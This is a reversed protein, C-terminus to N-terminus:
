IGTEKSHDGKEPSEMSQIIALIVSFCSESDTEDPIFRAFKVADGMRLAGALLGLQIKTLSKQSLKILLDDTTSFLFPIGTRRSAYNRFVRSLTTHYEKLIQPDGTHMKKLKNLALLAEEYASIDKGQQFSEGKKRVFYWIIWGVLGLAATIILAIIWGNLRGSDVEIISKIERLQGSSDSPSYSVRVLISDSYLNTIKGSSRNLASVPLSPFAWKGSDFSTFQLTQMYGKSGDEHALTEVIGTDTIEFHPITDPLSLWTISDMGPLFDAKIRVTVPEGILINNRDCITRITQATAPIIFAPMVFVAAFVVNRVFVPMM